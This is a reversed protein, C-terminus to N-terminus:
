GPAGRAPAGLAALAAPLPTSRGTRRKIWVIRSAGTAFRRGDMWIEYYTDISSRGVRGVSTRVEFDGPYVLPILFDCSANVIVPGEEADQTSGNAALATLWEIRAQEMYRFYWTNNVHGFADMDAWRISQRSTHVHTRTDTM